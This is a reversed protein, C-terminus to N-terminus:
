MKIIKKILDRNYQKQIFLKERARMAKRERTKDSMKLLFLTNEALEKDTKFTVVDGSFINELNANFNTILPKGYSIIDYVAFSVYNVDDKAYNAKDYVVIRAESLLKEREELSLKAFDNGSIERVGEAEAFLVKFSTTIEEYIYLVNYKYNNDLVNHKIYGGSFVLGDDEFKQTSFSIYFGDLEEKYIYNYRHLLLINRHDDEFRKDLFVNESRVWIDVGVNNLEYPYLDDSFAIKQVFKGEQEMGFKLVNLMSLIDYDLKEKPISLRIAVAHEKEYDFKLKIAGGGIVASLVVIVIFLLIKKM